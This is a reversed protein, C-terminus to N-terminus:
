LCFCLDQKSVRSSRICLYIKQSIKDVVGGDTEVVRQADELTGYLRGAMSPSIYYESAGTDVVAKVAVPDRTQDIAPATGEYLPLM